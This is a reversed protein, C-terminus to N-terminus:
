KCPAFIHEWVYSITYQIRPTTWGEPQWSSCTSRGWVQIREKTSRRSRWIAWCCWSYLASPSSPSPWRPQKTAHTSYTDGKHPRWVHCMHQNIQILRLLWIKKGPIRHNNCSAVAQACGVQAVRMSVWSVCFKTTPCDMNIQAQEMLSNLALKIPYNVRGNVEVWLREIPHNQLLAM